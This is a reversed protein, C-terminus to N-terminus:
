PSVMRRSRLRREAEARGADDLVGAARATGEVGRADGAEAARRWWVYAEVPDRRVGAGAWYSHALDAYVESHGAEAARQIWAAARGLDRPV